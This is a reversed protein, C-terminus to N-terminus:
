RRPKIYITFDGFKETMSFDHKQCFSNKMKDLIIKAEKQAAEETPFDLVEAMGSRLFCSCANEVKIKYM